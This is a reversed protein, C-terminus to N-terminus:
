SAAPEKLFDARRRAESAYVSGPFEEALRLYVDRAEASRRAGELASSLSMLVHDRPVLLTADDAMQRYLKLGDEVKGRRVELAALSLRALDPTITKGDRQAAVEGLAKSAEDYQGLELRSLGEYYRARRGAPQSGYQRAVEAFEQAAQRYRDATTAYVKETTGPPVVSSGTVPAHFTKLAAGFADEASRARSRSWSSFGLWGAVVAVVVLATTTAEKEHARLWNVTLSLGSVFEDQKIQKKLEAKM